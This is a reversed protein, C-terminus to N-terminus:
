KRKLARNGTVKQRGPIARQDPCKSCPLHEWGRYAFGCMGGCNYASQLSGPVSGGRMKPIRRRSSPVSEAQNLDSLGLILCLIYRSSPTWKSLSIGCRSCVNQSNTRHTCDYNCVNLKCLNRDQGVLHTVCRRSPNEKHRCSAPVLM